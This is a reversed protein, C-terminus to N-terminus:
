EHEAKRRAIIAKAEARYKKLNRSALRRVRRIIEGADEGHYAAVVKAFATVSRDQRSSNCRRCATVLNSEHNRGGKCHPKIHDLTLHEGDEVAYGCWVCALGDRLYIGLRKDPRCWKGGNVAPHQPKTTPPTM